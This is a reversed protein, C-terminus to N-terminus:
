SSVRPIPTLPLWSSTPQPPRSPERDALAADPDEDLGALIITTFV